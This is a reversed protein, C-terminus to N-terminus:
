TSTVKEFSLWLGRHTRLRLRSDGTIRLERGWSRVPHSLLQSLKTEAAFVGGPKLVREIERVAHGAKAIHYCTGFDIVADLFESEVPIRRVDANILTVAPELGRTRQAAQPLARKDMDLGILLEPSCLRHIVPLAVGAGCGVELIRRHSALKLAWIFLPVEITQQRANRSPKEPFPRYEVDRAGM